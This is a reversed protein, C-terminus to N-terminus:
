NPNRIRNGARIEKISERTSNKLNGWIPGNESGIGALLGQLKDPANEQLWYMAEEQSYANMSAFRSATINEWPASANRVENFNSYLRTVPEGNADLVANGSADTVVYSENNAWVELDRGANRFTQDSGLVEKVLMIDEDLPDKSSTYEELLPKLKKLGPANMALRRGYAIIETTDNRKVADRWATELKAPNSALDYDMTDYFNNAAKIQEDSVAKKASALVRLEGKEDVGAAAERLKKSSSLRDVLDKQQVVKASSIGQEVIQLAQRSDRIQDAYEAAGVAVGPADSGKTQVNEVFEALKQESLKAGDANRNARMHLAQTDADHRVRDNWSREAAKQVITNFDEAEQQSHYTDKLTRALRADYHENEPDLTSKSHTDAATENAAKYKEAEFHQHHVSQHRQKLVADEKIRQQWRNEDANKVGEEDLAAERAVNDAEKWSNRIAGYKNTRPDYQYKLQNDINKKYGEHRQNRNAELRRIGRNARAALNTNKGFRRQLATDGAVSKDRHYEANARAWNKGRDFFGKSSNNTIGAIRGLLGSSFQMIMPALFLPVFMVMLGFLAMHVKGSGDDSVASAIIITGALQSGSFLLAFLPFFVLLTTFGKRFKDFLSQTGPLVYAVFALPSLVVALIILAQRAALVIFALLVGFGAGFLGMVAFFAIAAPNLATAVAGAVLAGGSLAMTLVSSWSFWNVDSIGASSITGYEAMTDERIGEFVAHVSAGLLNSVDVSLAMIWYSINVLIAGVILRPLTSKISYNSIGLSSVQSFIIVLFAIVFCINAINRMIVWYPYIGTTDDTLADVTLFQEVIIYVGDIADAVWSTVPCILWGISGVSDSSCDTTPITGASEAAEVVTVSEPSTSSSGGRSETFTIQQGTEGVEPPQVDLFIVKTVSTGPNTSGQSEYAYQGVISPHDDARDDSSDVQGTYSYTEGGATLTSGDWEADLAWAPVSLPGLLTFCAVLLPTALMLLRRRLNVRPASRYRPVWMAKSSYWKVSLFDILKVVSSVQQM